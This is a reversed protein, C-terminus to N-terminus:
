IHILSLNKTGKVNVEYIKSSVHESIDIISATHIVSVEYGETHELLPRLSEKDRVDGHYYFVNEQVQRKYM